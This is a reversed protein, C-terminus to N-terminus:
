QPREDLMGPLLRVTVTKTELDVARVVDMLAPILLERGQNVGPVPRIIYVEHAATFLVDIIEGLQRQSETQVALGIIDHVWFSDEDLDMAANEPIYLWENLLTEASSRDIVETFRVLFGGKHPRSTVIEALTLEPGVLMQHGPTFRENFDTFSEVKVEGQLGHAGLIRGVVLYGPPVPAARQRHFRSTRRKRGKGPRGGAEQQVRSAM